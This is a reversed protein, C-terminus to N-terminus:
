WLTIGWLAMIEFLQLVDILMMSNLSIIMMSSAMPLFAKMTKNSALDWWRGDFWFTCRMSDWWIMTYLKWWDQMTQRYIYIYKYKYIYIYIKQYNLMAIAISVFCNIYFKGIWFTAKRCCVTLKGCMEHDFWKM